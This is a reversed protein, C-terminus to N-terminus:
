CYVGNKINMIHGIGIGWSVMGSAIQAAYTLLEKVTVKYGDSPRRANSTKALSASLGQFSPNVM